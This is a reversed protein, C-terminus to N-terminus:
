TIRIRPWISSYSIASDFQCWSTGGGDMTCVRVPHHSRFRSGEVFDMEM